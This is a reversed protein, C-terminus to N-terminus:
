DGEKGPISHDFARNMGMDSGKGKPLASAHIKEDRSLPDARNIIADQSICLILAESEVVM